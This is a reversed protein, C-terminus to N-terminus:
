SPAKMPRPQFADIAAQRLLHDALVLQTMAEIVPVIRPAICPHHRGAKAKEGVTSPPRVACRFEIAEGTSIGGEIGGFSAAQATM